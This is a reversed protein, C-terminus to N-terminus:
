LAANETERRSVLWSVLMMIPLGIVVLLLSPLAAQALREDSAYHHASVALTEFDLPRLIMTAPLEKMVEVFVLLAATAIGSFALPFHIRGIVAWPSAGLSRAAQDMSPTIRVLASECPGIAAAAFRAQYAFLLAVLGGGAVMPAAAGSLMDLFNQSAALLAIVGLAAVAGPVAYGTHAARVAANAFWGGTRAAYAAGLGLLAAILASLSAVTMTGWFAAAPSRVPQTELALTLLHTGPVILGFVVPISCILITIGAWRGSLPVRHQPKNRGGSEAVQAGRRALREGGFIVLTVLLLILALRAAAQPDGFSIWSRLIGVTFTPTGLFDVTGYDALTEMAVLATGAMIAPRALPLSVTFFATVPSAGLTRAAEFSNTGSYEFAQRALLYIYPYFSIAFIFGAGFLGSTTPFYGATLSYVPGGAATMSMWAYGSVYSPMALSLPLAVVLLRRGPFAYRSTLWATPVGLLLTGLTTIILLGASNRVYTGLQTDWLHGMHAGGGSVGLPILALVPLTCILAAAVGFPTPSIGRRARDIVQGM